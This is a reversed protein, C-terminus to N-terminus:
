KLFLQAPEVPSMTWSIIDRELMGSTGKFSQELSAPVPPSLLGLALLIERKQRFCRVVAIPPFLQAGVM